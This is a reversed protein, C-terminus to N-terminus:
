ASPASIPVEGYPWYTMSRARKKLVPMGGVAKESSRHIEEDGAGGPEDAGNTYPHQECDARRLGGVRGPDCHQVAQGVSASQVVDIETIGPQREDLAVDAIGAEDIPM